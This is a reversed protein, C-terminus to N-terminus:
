SLSGAPKGSAPESQGVQVTRQAQGEERERHGQTPRLPGGSEQGEEGLAGAAEKARGKMKDMVGENKDQGSSKSGM